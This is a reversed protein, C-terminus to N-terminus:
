KMGTPLDTLAKGNAALYCFNILLDVVLPQSTIEYEISPGFGLTMYQYLCLPNSCVYPKLAEFDNDVRTHCVLCFETCRILHRLTFQMAMLPYSAEEPNKSSDMADATGYTSM